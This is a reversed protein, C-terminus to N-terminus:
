DIELGTLVTHVVVNLFIEFRAIKMQPKWSNGFDSVQFRLLSVQGYKSECVLQAIKTWLTQRAEIGPSLGQSLTLPLSFHTALVQRRCCCSFHSHPITSTMSSAM